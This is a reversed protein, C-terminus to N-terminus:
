SGQRPVEYISTGDRQYVRPLQNFKALGAAPYTEQELGGVYVYRVHYQHLLPMADQLSPASYMAAVDAIRRDIAQQDFLGRQQIEHWDWGLVTPLGTYISIRSAWSYIKGRGELIVPSGQVHDQLWTIAEADPRLPIPRQDQWVSHAMYAQGDDTLPLPTFRDHARAISGAVTYVLGCALLLASGRLVLRRGFGPRARLWLEYLALAAALSWLVWVQYDLKFVTNMRGVDGAIVFFEMFLDLGLGLGVLICILRGRVSVGPGFLTTADLGLLLVLLLPLWLSLAALVALAVAFLLLCDTWTTLAHRRAPQCAQSLRRLAVGPRRRNRALLRIIRGLPGRAAPGFNAWLLYSAIGLLFIGHIVLYDGLSTRAGTWPLVTDYLTAFHRSYPRFLVEALVLVVATQWAARWLSRWGLRGDRAAGALLLLAGALALYTPEDWANTAKLAGIVLGLLVLTIASSAAHVREGAARRGVLAVGAGVGLLVLPLALAHAHLDGYLFTFFPFENITNPIVRSATWYWWNLQVPLPQGSLLRGLGAVIGLLGTVGPVGVAPLPGALTLLGQVIVGIEGLNGVVGIFVASLLGAGLVPLPRVPARAKAGAYGAVGDVPGWWGAVSAVISFAGVCTLAPLLPVALNYAVAPVIALLKILTGVLVFGFYYYNIFGGAFWPDYPPFTTSKMTANLFAFDMPKEGGLAPHWLDPNTTRIFFFLGFLLLFLGEGFAWRRWRTTCAESLARRQWVSAVLALVVMVGLVLAIEPRTYTGWHLSPIIWAGYALLLLGGAKALLWGGDWLGRLAGFLLPFALLGLLEIGLWWAVPPVRNEWNGRHFLQTWTGGAVDAARAAPRLQLNTTPLSAAQPDLQQVHDLPVAALLRQVSQASFAPTKQYILVKPHDYVTFAEDPQLQAALGQYGAVRDDNITIGFLSPYSAQKHVLAFGLQGSFLAQYYRITMPYRQPIRPISAYLRNSSMIIYDSAQLVRVIGAVKQPTDSDYLTLTQQRYRSSQQHAGSLNLPLADDWHEVAITAGSPIHEYIWASAAVRTNPRTYIRTFAFAWLVAGVLAFAGLAVGWNIAPRRWRRWRVREPLQWDRRGALWVVLWAALLALFPYLQYFYRMTKSQQIGLYGLNALVWTVPILHVLRNRRVIEVCALVLGAFCLLGLPWGMGWLVIDKIPFLIPTTHAWQLLFPVDATGAIYSKQQAEDRLWHASLGLVGSFAYPQFIRFAVLAAVMAGGFKVVAGLLSEETQRVRPWQWSRVLRLGLVCLLPLPALAISLKCALALGFAFGSVLADGWSGSRLLRLAFWFSLMLFFVTFTDVTMFHSLQIGLVSVALFAAALLGAATGYLRRGTAFLLLVSGLDACASLVRGVLVIGDYTDRHLLSGVAKLLFIPLTGYVFSGFGRNYPNLPSTASSFYQVVSSPWAIGTDVMVIFREDPHLHQGADWNVDMLRLSAAVLIIAALLLGVALPHLRRHSADEGGWEVNADRPASGARAPPAKTLM